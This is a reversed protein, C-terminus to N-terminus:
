IRSELSDKSQIKDDTRLKSKRVIQYNAPKPPKKEFDHKPWRDQAYYTSKVNNGTSPLLYFKIVAQSLTVTPPLLALLVLLFLPIIPWRRIFFWFQGMSGRHAGIQNLLDDSLQTQAM